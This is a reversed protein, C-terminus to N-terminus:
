GDLDAVAAADAAATAATAARQRQDALYTRRVWLELAATLQQRPTPAPAPVAPDAPAPDVVYGAAALAALVKPVAQDRITVTVQM